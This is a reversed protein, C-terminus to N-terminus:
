KEQFRKLKRELIEKAHTYEDFTIEGRDYLKENRKIKSQLKLIEKKNM